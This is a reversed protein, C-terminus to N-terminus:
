PSLRNTTAVVVAGHVIIAVTILPLVWIFPKSVRHRTAANDVARRITSFGMRVIRDFSDVVVGQAIPAGAACMPVM